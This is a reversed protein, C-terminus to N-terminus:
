GLSIDNDPDFFHAPAIGLLTRCRSAAFIFISFDSSEYFLNPVRPQLKLGVTVSDDGADYIKARLAHAPNALTGGRVYGDAVLRAGVKVTSNFTCCGSLPIDDNLPHGFKLQRRAGRLVCRDAEERSRQSDGFEDHHKIKLGLTCLFSSSNFGKGNCPSNM